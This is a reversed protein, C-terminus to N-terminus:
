IQHHIIPQYLVANQIMRLGTSWGERDACMIGSRYSQWADLLPGNVVSYCLHDEWGQSAIFRWQRQEHCYYILSREMIIDYCLFASRMIFQSKTLPIWRDAASGSGSAPPNGECLTLLTFQRLKKITLGSLSKIIQPARYSMNCWQSSLANEHYHSGAYVMFVDDFPFMKRTVPWKHPSNVPVPSNGACFGTVGLKSTKKSRRRFLRSLLCDHPRHNSVSDHGNHRWQLAGSASNNVAYYRHCYYMWEKVDCDVGSVEGEHAYAM